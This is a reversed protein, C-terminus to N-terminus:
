RAPDRGEFFRKKAEEFQRELHHKMSHRYVGEVLTLMTFWIIAKPDRLAGQRWASRVEPKGIDAWGAVADCFAQRQNQDLEPVWDSFAFSANRVDHVLWNRLESLKRVFARQKADILQLATLFALKGTDKNSLELRRFVPELRQDKTARVLQHSLAGEVVAHAKIVFSWDSEQLLSMFLGAPLNLEREM